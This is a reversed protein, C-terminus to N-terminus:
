FFVQFGVIFERGPMSNGLGGNSGRPNAQYPLSDTSIFQPSKNEDFINNLAAFVTVGDFPYYNGRLNWIWFPDKKSVFFQNPKYTALLDEETNYYMTGRLIGLPRIDFTGAEGFVGGLAAQYAYMRQIKNGREIPNLRPDAGHDEMTFNYVGNGFLQVVASWGLLRAVDLEGQIEFGRVLAEGTSNFLQSVTNAGSTSIVRQGIRDYITNQFLAVDLLAAPQTLTVGIEYQLNTEPNLAPNGITQAGGLSIFSAALESGTPARFGTAIGSRLKLWETALLAAGISYTTNDYDRAGTRLLPQNPTTLLEQNGYTYRLGARLALRDEFVHQVDEAYLGVSTDRENNDLPAIQPTVGGGVRQIFRQSNLRAQEVDLGALLLNSESLRFEPVLKMGAAQQTRRNHDISNGPAGTRQRFATWDLDDVDNFFYAQATWAYANDISRGTLIADASQNYRDELSTFSWQSGRFGTDYTGDTRAIVELHNRDDFDYGTSVLAGLRNWATNALPQERAGRGAEYSDRRGGSLGIYYGASDLRDAAYANGQVLGWSGAAGQIFRGETNQSNRTIINIVGGIAQSGYIVSGPGRIIEIRLVDALSLKSINATGARRGNILVTVQSRFDRGQGETAGGRINLLTQGPTWESFFGVANEALLDTVSKANSNRIKEESIVQITSATQSLPESRGPATVVVDDLRTVSARAAPKEQAELAGSPVLGAVTLALLRLARIHPLVTPVRAAASLGDM